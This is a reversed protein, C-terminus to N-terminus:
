RPDFTGMWLGANSQPVVPPQQQLMRRLNALGIKLATLSDELGEFELSIFGAYNAQQLAALCATVDVQGHGIVAPRLYNGMRSRFFGQGPDVAHPPKVHFDKVHCHLALPALRRVARPPDEDVLMFNGMDLQWGFNPHNVERVLQECRESDQVFLGRNEVCTRVGLTEGYAAVVRCSRALTPLAVRFDAPGTLGSPLGRSAEHRLLPSGLVQAVRAQHRLQLLEQQLDEGPPNIFEGGVGYSVVRLRAEDCAERLRAALDLAREIPRDQVLDTFEVGEFGLDRAQAIVWFLDRRSDQQRSIRFSSSTVAFRM